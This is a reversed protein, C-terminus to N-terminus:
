RVCAGAVTTRVEEDEDNKLEDVAYGQGAFKVITNEM